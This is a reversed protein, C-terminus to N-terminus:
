RHDEDYFEVQLNLYKGASQRLEWLMDHGGVQWDEDTWLYGTIDSYRHGFDASSYGLVHLIVEETVEEFSIPTDSIFYRATVTHGYRELDDTLIDAIPEGDLLLIDFGEGHDGLKLWGAYQKNM